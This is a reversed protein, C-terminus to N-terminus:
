SPTATAGSRRGRKMQLASPALMPDEKPHANQAFAMVFFGAVAQCADRPKKM